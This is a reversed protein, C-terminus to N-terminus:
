RFPNESDDPGPKRRQAIPRRKLEVRVTQPAAPTVTLVQDQYGARQFTLTLPEAGRDLALPGPATGLFVGAASRIETGEPLGEFTLEVRDTEAAKQRDGRESSAEGAVAQTVAVPLSPTTGVEESALPPEAPAPRMVWVVGGALAIVIALPLVARWSRAGADPRRSAVTGRRELPLTDDHALAVDSGSVARPSSTANKAGLEAVDVPEGRSARELLRVVRTLSSPRHAPDKELLALVVANVAAPLDPCRDSPPEARASTHKLLIELQDSGEFPPAGTLVEYVVLGFSYIDSRHDVSKGRAQEPSMYRPTGMLAGSKTRAANSEDSSLKAIGFDIVKAVPAGDESVVFVNAPKLDRHAIGREHTADLASAIGSLLPLAEALPLRGRRVLLQELTEGELYEMVHYHRGDELRGFASIDVINRHRVQNVIRAEALFRSVARPDGSYRRGLVKIAARRAILPNEAEYVTGFGGSGLVRGIVYDGATTGPELVEGGAEDEAIPPEVPDM